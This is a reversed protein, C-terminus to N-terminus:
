LRQERCFCGRTPSRPTPPQLLRERLRQRVLLVQWLCLCSTIRRRQGQLARQHPSKQHRSTNLPGKSAGSLGGGHDFQKDAQAVRASFVFVGAVVRPEPPDILQGLLQLNLQLRIFVVVAPHGAGRQLAVGQPQQLRGGEHVQRALSHSRQCPKVFDFGRLDHHHVVFQVHHRTFGLQFQAAAVGSVVTQAVDM